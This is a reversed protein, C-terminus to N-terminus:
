RKRNGDPGPERTNGDAPGHSVMAQRRGSPSMVRAANRSKRKTRPCRQTAYADRNNPPQPHRAPGGNIPRPSERGGDAAAFM